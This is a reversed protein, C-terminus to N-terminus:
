PEAPSTAKETSGQQHQEDEEPAGTTRAARARQRASLCPVGTRGSRPRRPLALV